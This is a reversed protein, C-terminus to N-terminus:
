SAARSFKITKEQCPLVDWPLRQLRQYVDWVPESNRRAIREAVQYCEECRRRRASM